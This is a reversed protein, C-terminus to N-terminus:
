GISKITLVKGIRRTMLRSYPGTAFAGADVSERWVESDVLRGRRGEDDATYVEVLAEYRASFGQPAKVFQLSTYPIRAFVDLRSPGARSEGRLSIAEISIAAPSSQGWLPRGAAAGAALM